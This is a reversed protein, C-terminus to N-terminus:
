RWWWDLSKVSDVAIEILKDTIVKGANVWVLYYADEWVDEKSRYVDFYINGIRALEPRLASINNEISVEEGEICEPVVVGDIIRLYQEFEVPMVPYYAPVQNNM